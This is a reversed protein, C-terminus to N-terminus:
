LAPARTNIFSAIEQVDLVYDIQMRSLANLIMFPVAANGPNQVAVTGGAKQVALLGETGDSSAGSLLICSVMSGYVDAATEFTVDISPRSFNVKESYDLSFTFDKEILTHYDSPAIYIVGQEIPDKEEVEKVPMTARSSLLFELMPDPDSGRHLVVLLAAALNKRLEPLVALIVELSGASGGLVVLRSAIISNKEM